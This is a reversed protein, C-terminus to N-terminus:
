WSRIEVKISRLKEIRKKLGRIEHNRRLEVARLAREPERFWEGRKGVVCVKKEPDLFLETQGAGLQDGSTAEVVGHTKWEKIYYANVVM